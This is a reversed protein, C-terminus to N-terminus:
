NELLTEALALKLRRFHVVPDSFNLNRLAPKELKCMGRYKYIFKLISDNKLSKLTIIYSSNRFNKARLILSEGNLYSMESLDQLQHPTIKKDLELILNIATQINVGM